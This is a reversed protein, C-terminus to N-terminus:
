FYTYFSSLYVLYNGILVPTSTTGSPYWESVQGEGTVATLLQCTLLKGKPDPRGSGRDYNVTV